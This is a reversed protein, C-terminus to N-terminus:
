QLFQVSSSTVLKEKSFARDLEPLALKIKRVKYVIKRTYQQISNVSSQLGKKRCRTVNYM